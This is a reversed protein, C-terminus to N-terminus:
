KFLNSWWSKISVKEVEKKQKSKNQKIPKANYYQYPTQYTVDTSEFDQKRLDRCGEDMVKTVQELLIKSEEYIYHKISYQDSEKCLIYGEMDYFCYGLGSLFTYEDNMALSNFLDLIKQCNHQSKTLIDLSEKIQFSQFFAEGINEILLKELDSKVNKRAYNISYIELIFDDSIMQDSLEEQSYLWAEFQEVSISGQTFSVIKEILYKPIKEM